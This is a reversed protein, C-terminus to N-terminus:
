RCFNHLSGSRGAGGSRLQRQQHQRRAQYDAEGTPDETGSVPSLQHTAGDASVLTYGYASFTVTGTGSGNKVVTRHLGLAPSRQINVGTGGKQWYCVQGSPSASNPVCAVQWDKSTVYLTNTLSLAGRQPLDPILPAHLMLNGNMLNVTDLHTGDYSGFPKWGNELNPAAQALLLNSFVFIIAFLQLLKALKM